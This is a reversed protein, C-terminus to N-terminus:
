SGWLRHPTRVIYEYGEPAADARGQTSPHTSNVPSSSDLKALAWAGPLWLCCPIKSPKIIAAMEARHDRACRVHHRSKTRNSFAITTNAQPDLDILLTKKGRQAIAAALNIATTTKRSAKQNAIALIATM